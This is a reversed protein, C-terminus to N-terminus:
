KGWAKSKLEARQRALSEIEAVCAEMLVLTNRGSAILSDVSDPVDDNDPQMRRLVQSATSSLQGCLMQLRKKADEHASRVTAYEGRAVIVAQDIDALNIM